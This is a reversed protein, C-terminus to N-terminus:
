TVPEFGTGLNSGVQHPSPSAQPYVTCPESCWSESKPTQCHAHNRKKVQRTGAPGSLPKCTGGNARPDRIIPLSLSWVTRTSPSPGAGELPINGLHSSAADVNILGLSIKETSSSKTNWHQEEGRMQLLNGARHREMWECLSTTSLCPGESEQQMILPLKEHPHITSRVHPMM